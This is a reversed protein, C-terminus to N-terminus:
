TINSKGQYTENIYNYAANVDIKFNEPNLYITLHECKKNAKRMKEMKLQNQKKVFHSNDSCIHYHLKQKGYTGALKFQKCRNATTSYDINSEILFNNEKLFNIYSKYHKIVKLLESCIPVWGNQYKLPHKLPIYFLLNMLYAVKVFNLKPKIGSENQKKISIKLDKFLPNPLWFGIQKNNIVIKM